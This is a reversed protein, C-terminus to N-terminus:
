KEKYMNTLAQNIGWFKAFPVLNHIAQPNGETAKMVDAGLAAVPPAMGRRAGQWQTEQSATIPDPLLNFTALADGLVGIGSLQGTAMLANYAGAPGTMRNEIYKSMSGRESPDGSWALGSRIGVVSSALGLSMAFQAAAIHRDGARVDHILQKGVSGMLFSKFQLLTAGIWTNFSLPLEGVTMRQMDRMALRNMGTRLKDLMDPDMAEINFMKKGNDTSRPNAEMFKNLDDLFNVEEGNVRQIWGADRAQQETMKGHKIRHGISRMALKEGFGQVSRQLSLMQSLRQGGALGRDIGSWFRSQTDGMEAYDDVRLTRPEFAFDEGTFPIIDDLEKLHANSAKQLDRRSAFSLGEIVSLGNSGLVRGLEPVSALGAAQLRIMGTFTRLRSMSKVTARNSTGNLDKGFLVDVVDRLMREEVELKKLEDDSMRGGLKANAIEVDIIGKAEDITSAGISRKVAVSGSVERVYGEMLNELDNDILDAYRLGGIEAHLDPLLSKKARNSVDESMEDLDRREIIASIVDEDVKEKRLADVLDNTNLDRPVGGTDPHLRMLQNYRVQALKDASEKSIKLGGTQFAKSIVGVVTSQGHRRAASMINATNLLKPLYHGTDKVGDFGRVGARQLEELAKSTQAKTADVAEKMHKPLAKYYDSSDIALMIQLDFEKRGATDFHARLMGKGRAKSFELYSNNRTYAGGGATRIARGVNHMISGASQASVTGGRRAGQGSELLLYGLNNVATHASSSLAAYPTLLYRSLADSQKIRSTIFDPAVTARNLDSSIGMEIDLPLGTEEGVNYLSEERLTRSQAAGVDRASEFQQEPTKAEWEDLAAKAQANSTALKVAEDAKAKASSVAGISEEMDKLNLKVSHKQSLGKEIRSLSNSLSQQVKRLNATAKTVQAKTKADAVANQARELRPRADDFAKKAKNIASGVAKRTSAKPNEIGTLSESVLNDFGSNAESQRALTTELEIDPDYASRLEAERARVMSAQEPPLRSVNQGTLDSLAANNNDELVRRKRPGAVMAAVGGDIVSGMVAGLIVDADTMQTNQSQELRGYGYMLSGGSIAGLVGSGAKSLQAMKAVGGSAFGMAWGAPDIIAAAFTAAAGSVGYKAATMADQRDAEVQKRRWDWESQSGAKLMYEGEQVSYGKIIEKKMSEDIKFQDDQQFQQQEQEYWQGLEDYVTGMKWASSALESVSTEVEQPANAVSTQLTPLVDMKQPKFEM